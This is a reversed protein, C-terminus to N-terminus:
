PQIVGSTSIEYPDSFFDFINHATCSKTQINLVFCYKHEYQAQFRFRLEEHEAEQHFCELCFKVKADKQAERRLQEQVFKEEEAQTGASTSKILFTSAEVTGKNSSNSPPSRHPLSETSTIPNDINPSTIEELYLALKSRFM